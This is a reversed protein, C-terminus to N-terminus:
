LERAVGAVAGVDEDAGVHSQFAVLEWDMQGGGAKIGATANRDSTVNVVSDM